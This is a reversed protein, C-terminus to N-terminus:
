LIYMIHLNTIDPKKYKYFKGKKLTETNAKFQIIKGQVQVYKIRCNINM